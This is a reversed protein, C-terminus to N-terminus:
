PLKFPYRPNSGTVVALVRIFNNTIVSVTMTGNNFATTQNSSRLLGTTLGTIDINAVFVAVYQLGTRNELNDHIHSSERKTQHTSQNQKQKCMFTVALFVQIPNSPLAM